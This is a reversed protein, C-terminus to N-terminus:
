MFITESLRLNKLKLGSLVFYGRKNEILVNWIKEKSINIKGLM